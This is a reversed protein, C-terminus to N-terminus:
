TYRSIITLHTNMSTYNTFYITYNNHLILDHMILVYQMCIDWGKSEAGQRQRQCTPGHSESRQGAFTNKWVQKPKVWWTALTKIMPLTM